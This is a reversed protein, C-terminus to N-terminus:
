CRVLEIACLAFIRIFVYLNNVLFQIKSYSYTAINRFFDHSLSVFWGFGQCFLLPWYTQISWFYRGKKATLLQNLNLIGVFM